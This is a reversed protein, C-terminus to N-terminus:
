YVLSLDHVEKKEGYLDPVDCSGPLRCLANFKLSTATRDSYVRILGAFPRPLDRSRNQRWEKEKCVLDYEEQKITQPRGKYALQRIGPKNQFMRHALFCTRRCVCLSREGYFLWFIRKVYIAEQNSSRNGIEVIKEGFGKAALARARSEELLLKTKRVSQM